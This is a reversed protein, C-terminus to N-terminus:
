FYLPQAGTRLTRCVDEQVQREFLIGRLISYHLGLGTFTGSTLITTISKQVEQFFYLQFDFYYKSVYGTIDYEAGAM